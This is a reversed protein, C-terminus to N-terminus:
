ASKHQPWSSLCRRHRYSGGTCQLQAPSVPVPAKRALCSSAPRTFQASDQQEHRCSALVASYGSSPKSNVTSPSLEAWRTMNKASKQNLCPKMPM